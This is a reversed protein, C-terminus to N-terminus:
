AWMLLGTMRQSTVAKRHMRATTEPACPQERDRVDFDLQMALLSLHWRSPARNMTLM